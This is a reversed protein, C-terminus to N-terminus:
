CNGAYDFYGIGNEECIQATRESIYPAVLINVEKSQNQKEILGINEKATGQGM